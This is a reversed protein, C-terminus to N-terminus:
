AWLEGINYMEMHFNVPTAPSLTPDRVDGMEKLQEVECNPLKSTDETRNMETFLPSLLPTKQWLNVFEHHLFTLEINM